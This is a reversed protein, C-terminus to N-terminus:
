LEDRAGLVVAEGADWAVRVRVLHGAASFRAWAARAEMRMGDLDFLGIDGDISWAVLDHHDGGSGTGDIRVVRAEPSAEPVTV